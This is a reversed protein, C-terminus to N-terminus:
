DMAYFAVVRYTSDKYNLQGMESDRWFQAQNGNWTFNATYYGDRNVGWAQDENDATAFMLCRYGMVLFLTPRKTFNIVTPNDMGYTGTGVYSTVQIECNGLAMLTATHGAVTSALGTVAGSLADLDAQDAKNEALDALAADVKANDANFDTRLVQDTPEWQNLQYNTTQNSAM